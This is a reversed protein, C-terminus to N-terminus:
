GKASYAALAQALHLTGLALLAQDFPPHHLPAMNLYILGSIIRVRAFDFGREGVYRELIEIYERARYRQAFDVDAVGGNQDYSLLGLKVYDYNLIIGGLLKGLDYYFDGTEVCGAFDQRWDLLVFRNGDWLVNDFQLDGHIFSPVGQCLAEWPVAALLDALPPVTMGNVMTLPIADPYKRAYHALRDLTKTRYFDACLTAMGPHEASRWVSAEMWALFKRFLGPTLSEYLTRGPVFRYAYFNDRSGELPPFADPNLRAKGVRGAVIRADSFFKVARGDGFYMFENTKSFDYAEGEAVAQRYRELTGLDQWQNKRAWVQGSGALVELGRAIEVEGERGMTAALGQWFAAHDQIHMLGTFALTGPALCKNLVGTVRGAGDVAFNCYDATEAEAVEAVGVRNAGQWDGPVFDYLGDVPLFFFPRALHERCCYLSYGPGTGPGTYRDVTVFTVERGPHMLAVYDRVLKAHHGIGIVFPTDTPFLDIVHSLIARGRVPLLGKNTVTGLQGMRTGLGATLLCVASPGPNM